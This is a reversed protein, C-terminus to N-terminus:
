EQSPPPPVVLLSCPVLRVVKEATNGHLLRSLGRRKASGIVLLDCSEAHVAEVIEVAPKGHRVLYAVEIGHLDLSGVSQRLREEEEAPKTGPTVVCLLTLQATFTRALFIGSALAEQAPKSPDVAVLIKKVDTHAGGPRVLWVPDQAERMIREASSGLLVRDLTTKSGAGLMIMDVEHEIAAQLVVQDASGSRVIDEAAFEVGEAADRKMDALWEESRYAIVDYDPSHEPAEPIAHCLVLKSGYTRALLAAERLADLATESPEIGVLIKNLGKMSVEERNDQVLYAL